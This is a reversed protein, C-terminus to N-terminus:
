AAPPGLQSHAIQRDKMLQMFGHGMTCLPAAIPRRTQPLGCGTADSLAMRAMTM